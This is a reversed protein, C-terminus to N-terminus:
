DEKFIKWPLFSWTLGYFMALIIRQGFSLGQRILSLDILLWTAIFWGLNYWNVKM